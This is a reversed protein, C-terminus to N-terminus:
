VGGGGLFLCVVHIICLTCMVNFWMCMAYVHVYMYMYIYRSAKIPIYKYLLCKELGKPTNYVYYTCM